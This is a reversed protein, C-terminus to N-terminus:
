PRRSLARNGCRGGAIRTNSTGRGLRESLRARRTQPREGLATSHCPWTAQQGSPQGGKRLPKRRVCPMGSLHWGGKTPLTVKGLRGEVARAFWRGCQKLCTRPESENIPGPRARLPVPDRADCMLRLKTRRTLPSQIALLVPLTSRTRSSNVCNAPSTASLGLM